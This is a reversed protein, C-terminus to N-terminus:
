VYEDINTGPGNKDSNNKEKQQKKNQHEQFQKKQLGFKEIPRSPRAPWLNTIKNFAGIYAM